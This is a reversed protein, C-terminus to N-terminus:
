CKRNPPAPVVCLYIGRNLLRIRHTKKLSSKKGVRRVRLNSDNLIIRTGIINRSIVNRRILMFLQPVFIAVTYVPQDAFFCMPVFTFYLFFFVFDCVVANIVYTFLM